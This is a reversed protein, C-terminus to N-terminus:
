LIKRLAEGVLPDPAYDESYRLANVNNTGMERAITHVNGGSAFKVRNGYTHRLSRFTYTPFGIDIFVREVMPTFWALACFDDIRRTYIPQGLADKKKTKVRHERLIHHSPERLTKVWDAFWPQLDEHLRKGIVKAAEGKKKPRSFLITPIREGGVTTVTELRIQSRRPHVFIDPHGGTHYGTLIVKVPDYPWRGLIPRGPWTPLEEPESRENGEMPGFSGDPYSRVPYAKVATLFRAREEPPIPAHSHRLEEETKPRGLLGV